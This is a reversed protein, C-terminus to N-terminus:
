EQTSADLVAADGKGASSLEPSSDSTPGADDYFSEWFAYYECDSVCEDYVAFCQDEDRANKTGARGIRYCDEIGPYDRIREDGCVDVLAECMEAPPPFSRESLCGSMLLSAVMLQTFTM